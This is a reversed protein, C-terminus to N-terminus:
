QEDVPVAISEKGLFAALTDSLRKHDRLHPLGSVCAIGRLVGNVKLPFAGGCFAYHFEDAMWPETKGELENLVARRLSCHGTRMVTACKRDMWRINDAGTGNMLYQFVITDDLIVRVALPKDEFSKADSVLKQGLQLCIDQSISDFVYSKEAKDLAELSKNTYM